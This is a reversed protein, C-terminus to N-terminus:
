EKEDAATLAVHEFMYPVTGTQKAYEGEHVDGRRRADNPGTAWLSKIRADGNPSEYLLEYVGPCADRRDREYAVEDSEPVSPFQEGSFSMLLLVDSLPHKAIFERAREEGGEGAYGASITRGSSTNLIEFFSV